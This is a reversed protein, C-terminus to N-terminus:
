EGPFGFGLITPGEEEFWVVKRGKRVGISSKDWLHHEDKVEIWFLERLLEAKKHLEKGKCIMERKQEGPLRGYKAETMREIAQKELLRWMTYLRILEESLDGVIQDDPEFEADPEFFDNQDLSNLELSLLRWFTGM